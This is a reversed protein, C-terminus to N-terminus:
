DAAIVAAGLAAISDAFQDMWASVPRGVESQLAVFAGDHGAM